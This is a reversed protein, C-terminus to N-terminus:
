AQYASKLLCEFLVDSALLLGRGELNVVQIHQYLQAVPIKWHVHGCLILPITARHLANRVAEHGALKLEPVDPGQHLLLVDPKQLTLLKLLRVFDKEKRRQEKKPDGVIGGIGAIRLGDVEQCEGDLLHIKPQTAFSRMELATTGFQDHNGAVGAVWRFSDAFSQWVPRVDGSAGRRGLQPDTYLDGCLLVGVRAPLAQNFTGLYAALTTAVVTGLQRPPLEADEERVVGQMDSGVFVAECDSPLGEAAALSIPFERREVGGGVAASFYDVGFLPSEAVSLIRM